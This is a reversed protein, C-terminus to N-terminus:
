RGNINKAAGAVLSLCKGWAEATHEPLMILGFRTGREDAATLKWHSCSDNWECVVGPPIEVPPSM